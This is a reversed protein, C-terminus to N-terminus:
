YEEPLLLTTASRDAETIVWIRTSDPLTYASLLRTGNSLAQENAQRDHEDLDGWDGQEHRRILSWPSVKQYVLTSLASPTAVLQGLSFRSPSDPASPTDPVLPNDPVPSNDFNSSSDSPWM